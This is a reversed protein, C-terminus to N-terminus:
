KTGKKRLRALERKLPRFLKVKPHLLVPAGNAAVTTLPAICKDLPCVLVAGASLSTVILLISAAAVVTRARNESM